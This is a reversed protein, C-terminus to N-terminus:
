VAFKIIILYLLPLSLLSLFTSIFVCASAFKADKDYKEALIATTTGAPMGALITAVGLVTTGIPLFTCTILVIFPIIILRMLCYYITYKNLISKADIEALVSGVIIMSLPLNCNSVYSITNEIPEPFHIQFLLILFGAFAAIICPHTCLKKIVNKGNVSQFYALGVSWMCLRQPILYISAYLLGEAGYISECISNGILGANSCITGYKLVIRKDEPVGRYCLTNILAALMQIGIAIVLIWGASILIQMSMEMEFSHIINCPLIIDIFVDTMSKRGSQTIINMKRLIIGMMILLFITIQLYLLSKIDM